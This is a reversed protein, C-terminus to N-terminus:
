KKKYYNFGQIIFKQDRPDDGYPPQLVKETYTHVQGSRGFTYRTVEKYNQWEPKSMGPKSMQNQGAQKLIGEEGLLNSIVPNALAVAGFHHNGIDQSEMQEGKFNFSTEGDNGLGFISNKDNKLDWDGGDTVKARFDFPNIMGSSEEMNQDLLNSYIDDVNIEGGIEGLFQLEGNNNSTYVLNDSEDNRTIYGTNNIFITDGLPDIYFNPMNAFGVYPSERESAKPDIQLWRGIAPDYSRYFAMDLELIEDREIGNFKYNNAKSYSRQYSNFTLGFPYYDDRRVVELSVESLEANINRFSTAAVESNATMLIRIGGSETLLKEFNFVQFNQNTVGIFHIQKTGQYIRISGGRTNESKAEISFTFIQGTTSSSFLGLSMGEDKFSYTKNDQFTEATSIEGALTVRVNGLHDKLNYQYEQTAYDFSGETHMIFDLSGDTLHMGGIYDTVDTNAGNKAVKKLKTGAADYIYEVKDGNVKEVLRPLNLYNYEIRTIEKNKDETMNGNEDYIYERTGASSAIDVFGYDKNGIDEVRTLQNGEYDYAMNDWINNNNKRRLSEINGNADYAINDVTYFGAETIGENYFAAELRNVGDYDFDYRKTNNNGATAVSKWDMGGINGNYYKHGTAGQSGYKLSMGFKDSADDFSTGGNISTLWGRANYRYDVKQINGGLIKSVMEGVENYSLSAINVEPNTNLKHYQKLLRGAHDYENRTIITQNGGAIGLYEEKTKTVNGVFDYVISTRVRGNLHHDGITHILRQRSDYYNKFALMNGYTGDANLIRTYGGIELGHISSSVGGFENEGTYGYSTNFQSNRIGDGITFDTDYYTVTLVNATSAETPYSRNTYQYLSNGRDEYFKSNVNGVGDYFSNVTSQMQSQNFSGSAQFIGTIIPRNLADYKTYSWKQSESQVGDQTLVLRDRNDYVMYVWAAGPVKKEVMRNRGDYKYQFAFLDLYKQSPSQQLAKATFIYNNNATITVNQLTLSGENSISYNISTAPVSTMVMDSDILEGDGNWIESNEQKNFEPPLVMVLNDRWDYVYYTELYNSASEYNRKLIIQGFGNKFEVVKNDDEDLIESKLLAGTSYYGKNILKQGQYSWNVVQESLSNILYKRKITKGANIQWDNGPAAQELTRNLPSAEYLMQSYANSTSAIPKGSADTGDYFNNITNGNIAKYNGNEETSVYPLYEKEVRGLGDYEKFIVVDKGSPSAEKIVNQDFRGLGDFFTTSTNVSEKSKNKLDTTIAERASYEKVYNKNSQGNVCYAGIIQIIAYICIAKNKVSNYM